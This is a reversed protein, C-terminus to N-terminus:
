KENLIRRKWYPCLRIRTYRTLISYYLEHADDLDYMDLYEQWEPITCCIFLDKSYHYEICNM